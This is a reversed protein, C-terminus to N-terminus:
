LSAAESTRGPLVAEPRRGPEGLRAGEKGVAAAAGSRLGDGRTTVAAPDAVFAALTSWFARADVLELDNHRGGAITLLRKPGPIAAYLRLGNAYPVVEDADGHIVLVPSRIAAARGLNDFRSGVITGGLSGFHARGFDRGSSLPTILVIGALDPALTALHTAVTTGLSRGVVVVQRPEFGLQARAYRLAAEGDLRLGAESPSGTSEGYGRYGSALVAAGTVEAMRRIAPLRGSVNGANGHFSLVLRDPRRTAAVWCGEITEGDRTAYRVPQVEVPLSEVSPGPRRDPHFAIRDVVCGCGSSLLIGLGSAALIAAAPCSPRLAARGTRRRAVRLRCRRWTPPRARMPSGGIPHDDDRAPRNGAVATRDLPAAGRSASLWAGAVALVTAARAAVFRTSEIIWPDTM